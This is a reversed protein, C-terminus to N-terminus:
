LLFYLIRIGKSHWARTFLCRTMQRWKNGWSPNGWTASLIRSSTEPMQEALGRSHIVDPLLLALCKVMPVMSCPTWPGSRQGLCTLKTSSGANPTQLVLCLSPLLKSMKQRPLLPLWTDPLPVRYCHGATPGGPWHGASSPQDEEMFRQNEALNRSDSEQPGTLEPPWLYKKLLNWNPHPERSWLAQGM